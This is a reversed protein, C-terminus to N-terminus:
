KLPLTELPCWSPIVDTYNAQARGRTNADVTHPLERRTKRCVPIYAVLGFAGLHDFSPCARCTTIRIVRTEM